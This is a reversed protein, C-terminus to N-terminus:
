LTPTSQLLSPDRSGELASSLGQLPFSNFFSHCLYRSHTLKQEKNLEEGGTGEVGAEEVDLMSVCVGEYASFVM